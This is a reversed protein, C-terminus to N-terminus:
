GKIGTLTVGRIFHKQFFFFVLIVPVTMVISAAMTQAPNNAVQVSFAYLGFALPYLRQDAIFLLPGKFDNWCGIATFLAIAALTPKVLPLMIHWYVRLVGCGDIRAADEVDRPIGKMFQRLLFINFAGGFAAGLFLPILTNYAGLNKWILFGPIMTVQAPVMMTALMLMFVFDRGPWVLRSVGYAVISSSFIMLTCNLIILFLSTALYRGFPIYQATVIYNLSLKGWWAHLQDTKELLYTVKLKNPGDVPSPGTRKLHTWAKIRNSDDDPGPEQWTLTQWSFNALYNPRVSEFTSGLKEIKLSLRQWNDDPRMALQLKHLDKVDFTTDFTQELIIAPGKSFDYRVLAGTTGFDDVQELQAVAPTTNVFREELSKGEGLEQDQLLYSRVLTKGLVLHRYVNTFLERMVLPNLTRRAQVAIAENGKKWEEAPLSAEMKKLLGKAVERECLKVDLGKPFEFGSEHVTAMAIDLYPRTLDTLAKKYYDVDIYPSKLFSNPATPLSGRDESFLERDVKVSTFVLWVFPLLFAISGVILIIYAVTTAVPSKRFTLQSNGESAKM